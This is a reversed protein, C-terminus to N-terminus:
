VESAQRFREISCIPLDSVQGLRNSRALKLTGKLLLLLVFAQVKQIKEIKLRLFDLTDDKLEWGRYVDALPQVVVEQVVLEEIMIM